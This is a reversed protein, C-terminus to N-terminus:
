GDAFWDCETPDFCPEWESEIGDCSLPAGNTLTMALFVVNSNGPLLVSAVTKSPNVPLRYLYLNFAQSQITGSQFDRNATQFAISENQNGSFQTWDSFSQMITDSSGDTYNITIPQANQEGNVGTGLLQLTNFNGNPLAIPTTTGFLANAVNPAALHFTVNDVVIDTAGAANGLQNASYAFGDGDLGPTTFVTGDTYIGNRNFATALNVETGLPQTTLTVALIIMNRNSPLTLSKVTKTNNLLLTYGYLNFQRNDKAGSASNRYPMAVAEQEGRNLAPTFWDSLSQTLVATTGDTYTVKITQATQNGQIGTALLQLSIFKGSPLAITQGAASIADLSNPTGLNFQVGNLIRGSTLLTASYASGGGDLGGNTFATGDTTIASLNYASALNVPVGAGCTGVAASIAVRQLPVNRVSGGITGLIEVLTGSTTVATSGAALTLNSTTTAIAPSFSATTGSPLDATTLSVGGGFGNRAAVNIVSTATGSQNLYLMPQASSISVDPTDLQVYATQLLGGSRGTIALAINGAPTASSTQVQVTAQGSGVLTAPTITATVGAPAGVALVSLDVTGKFGNTPTLSVTITGSSGPLLELTPATATLQFNPATAANAPILANLMSQGAPSGWGTVLDYGTTAQFLNPSSNNFNNGSTIDHFLTKASSGQGLAYVLPNLFGIPNGNALENALALFGAWRPSALSTGGINNQCAGNACFYNDFNAEMAVDPINRFSANGQNTSNIVTKQYPPIPSQTNWGGGSGIWGTESAWAGGPGSTTLDTGGVVTVNPSNGPYNDNGPLAGGDGSAVFVNQGQAQLEMFVQEYGPQTAPTGDFGFSLSIQRATDDAAAQTFATLADSGTGYAEYVTLASLGPLMSIAQEIDIVEEGDDCAGLDKTGSCVGDVDLLVDYIPVKPSQGISSFYMQVDSLNYPGLEVLALTQGQGSVTVGPAYAARMDSGLFSGGPGSGTLQAQQADSAAHQLMSHPLDRNSLGEVSLIPVDGEVTPEVDPAYYRRNETPHQHMSMKVHFAQNVSPTSATVNVMLRNSFTRTVHFGQAAAYDLVAQYDSETPGFQELFQAQTLYRHYQASAPNNQESLLTQLQQQNRLPLTMGFQLKQGAPLPALTPESVPAASRASLVKLQQASLSQAMSVFLAVSMAACQLLHFRASVRM